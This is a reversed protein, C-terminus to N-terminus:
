RRDPAGLPCLLVSKYRQRLRNSAISSAMVTCQRANYDGIFAIAGTALRAGWRLATLPGRVCQPGPPRRPDVQPHPLCARGRWLSKYAKAVEAAPLETSTTLVSSAM